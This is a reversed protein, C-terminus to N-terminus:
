KSVEPQLLSTDCGGRWRMSCLEGVVRKHVLAAHVAHTGQEVGDVEEHGEGHEEPDVFVHAVTV